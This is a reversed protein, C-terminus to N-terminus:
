VEKRKRIEELINGIATTTTRKKLEQQLEENTYEELARM